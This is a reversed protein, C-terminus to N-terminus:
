CNDKTRPRGRARCSTSVAIQKRGAMAITRHMMKAGALCGAIPTRRSSISAPFCANHSRPERASFALAARVDSVLVISSRLIVM